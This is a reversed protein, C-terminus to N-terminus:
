PAAGSILERAKARYRPDLRVARQVDAAAEQRLTNRATDNHIRSEAQKTKHWARQFYPFARGPRLEISVTYWGAASKDDGRRACVLALIECADARQFPLPSHRTIRIAHFEAGDNDDRGLRDQAAGYAANLEHVFRADQDSLKTKADPDIALATRWYDAEDPIIGPHSLFVAVILCLCAAVAASVFVTTRSM